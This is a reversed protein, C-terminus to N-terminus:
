FAELLYNSTNGEQTVMGTIKQKGTKLIHRSLVFINKLNTRYKYKEAIYGISIENPVPAIEYEEFKEPEGIIEVDTEIKDTVHKAIESCAIIKPDDLHLMWGFFGVLGPIGLVIAFIITM